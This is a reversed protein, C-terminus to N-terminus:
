ISVFERGRERRQLERGGEGGRDGAYKVNLQVFLVLVTVCEVIM